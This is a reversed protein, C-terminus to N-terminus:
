HRGASRQLRRTRTQVGVPWLLVLVTMKSAVLGLYLGVADGYATAGTGCEALSVDDDALGVALADRRAQERAESVLDCFTTLTVLQRSTFAEGWTYMGYMPLRDVDHSPTTVREEPKWAPQASRAIREQEIDPAIYVRQRQGEAVIALPVSEMRGAQGETRIHQLAAQSNCVLCRASRNQVTGVPPTGV